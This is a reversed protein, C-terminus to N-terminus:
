NRLGLREALKLYLANVACVYPHIELLSLQTFDSWQYPTKRDTAPLIM